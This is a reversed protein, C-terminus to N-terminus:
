IIITAITIMIIIMIIIIMIENILYKIIERKLNYVFIGVFYVNLWSM